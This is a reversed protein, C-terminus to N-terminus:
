RVKDFIEIVISTVVIFTFLLFPYLLSKTSSQELISILVFSLPVEVDAVAESFECELITIDVNSIELISFLVACTALFELIALNIYAFPFFASTCTLAYIM